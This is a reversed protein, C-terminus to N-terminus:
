PRDGCALGLARVAETSRLLRGATDEKEVRDAVRGVSLAQEPSATTVKGDLSERVGCEGDTSAANGSAQFYSFIIFGM